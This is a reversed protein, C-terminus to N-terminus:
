SSAGTSAAFKKVLRIETGPHLQRFNVEDFFSRILFIGRGTGRLINEEALPDPLKEMDFGTGEDAVTAMLQEQSCELTVTIFKAPDYSNGHPVANVAAERIGMVLKFGEDSDIGAAEILKEAEEEVRSVSEMTSALQLRIRETEPKSM